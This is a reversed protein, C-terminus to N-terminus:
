EKFKFELRFYVLIILDFNERIIPLVHLFTIEMGSTGIIVFYGIRFTFISAFILCFIQSLM